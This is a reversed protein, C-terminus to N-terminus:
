DVYSILSSSINNTNGDSATINIIKDKFKSYFLLSYIKGIYVEIEQPNGLGSILTVYYIVMKTLDEIEDESNPNNIQCIKNMLPALQDSLYERNRKVVNNMNDLNCTFYFQMELTSLKPDNKSELQSITFAVFKAVNERSTMFDDTIGWNPDLLLM